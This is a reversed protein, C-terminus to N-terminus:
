SDLSFEQLTKTPVEEDSFDHTLEDSIESPLNQLLDLTEQLSLNKKESIVGVSPSFLHEYDDRGAVASFQSNLCDLARVQGVGRAKVPNPERISTM